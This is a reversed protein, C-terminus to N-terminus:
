GPLLGEILRLTREVAGRNEAILRKGAEGAEFRRNANGLFDSIAPALEAAGALRVGAGRELTLRAIEEFNFMHPGFVVPAGVAAAELVNHGGTPVLSGGVFAVDVASYFLQLEGMTDGILVDVRDSLRQRQESRLAVRCGHKRALRAVTGFREPHRPVIVLLHRPFRASLAARAAL